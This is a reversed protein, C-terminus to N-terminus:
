RLAAKETYGDEEFSNAYYKSVKIDYDGSATDNAKLTASIVVDSSVDITAEGGDGTYTVTFEGAATAEAATSYTRSAGTLNPPAYSVVTFASKDFAVNVGIEAALDNTAPITFSVVFEEGAEVSTASISLGNAEAAFSLLPFQSLMMCVALLVSIWKKTRRM